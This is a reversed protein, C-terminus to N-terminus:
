SAFVLVAGLAVVIATAILYALIVALAILLLIGLAKFVKKLMKKVWEVIENWADRLAQKSPFCKMECIRTVSEYFFICFEGAANTIFGVHLNFLQAHPRKKILKVGVHPVIARVCGGVFDGDDVDLILLLDDPLDHLYKAIVKRSLGM